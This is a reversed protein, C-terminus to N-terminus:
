TIVPIGCPFQPTPLGGKVIMNFLSDAPQGNPLKGLIYVGNVLNFSRWRAWGYGKAYLNVEMTQAGNWLYNQQITEVFGLDGGFNYDFPPSISTLVQNVSQTKYTACDSYIRYTGDSEVPFSDTETPVERPAWVIGGNSGPWSKSAFIKFSPKTQDWSVETTSQYVYQDDWTNVETPYGSNGKMYVIQKKLLDIYGYIPQGGAIALHNSLAFSPDPVAYDLFDSM